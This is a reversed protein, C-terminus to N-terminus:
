ATVAEREPAPEPAAESKEVQNSPRLGAQMAQYLAYADLPMPDPLTVRGGAEFKASPQTRLQRKPGLTEALFVFHCLGTVYSRVRRDLRPVYRQKGDEEVQDTHSLMWIGLPSAVLRGIQERFIAEQEATGKGYDALAAAAVRRGKSVKLDAFKWLDDIMDLGVTRFAHGPAVLLDVVEVFQDWSEVHVVFHEGELLTTGGQTDVILTKKPAWQALLTSKGSKPFGALLVRAARPDVANRTQPITPLTMKSM